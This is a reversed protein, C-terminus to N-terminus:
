YLKFIYLLFFQVQLLSFTPFGGVLGTSENLRQPNNSGYDGTSLGWPGWRTLPVRQPPHPRQREGTGDKHM